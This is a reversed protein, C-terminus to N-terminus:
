PEFELEPEAEPGPDPEPESELEPEWELEGRGSRHDARGWLACGSLLRSKHCKKECFVVVVSLRLNRAGAEHIYVLAM